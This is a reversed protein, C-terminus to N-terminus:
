HAPMNHFMEYFTQLPEVYVREPTEAGDTRGTEEKWSSKNVHIVEFEPCAIRAKPAPSLPVPFPWRHDHM